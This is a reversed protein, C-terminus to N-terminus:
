LIAKKRQGSTMKQLGVNLKAGHVLCYPLVPYWSSFALFWTPAAEQAQSNATISELVMLSIGMMTIWRQRPQAPCLALVRLFNVCGCANPLMLVQSNARKYSLQMSSLAGLEVKHTLSTTKCLSPCTAM